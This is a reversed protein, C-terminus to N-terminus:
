SHFIYFKHLLTTSYHKKKERSFIKLPHFILLLRSTNFTFDLLSRICNKKLFFQCIKREYMLYKFKEILM